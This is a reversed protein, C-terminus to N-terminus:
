LIKTPLDSPGSAVVLRLYLVINFHLQCTYPTLSYVLNFSEPYPGNVPDQSCPISSESETFPGSNRLNTFLSEAELRNQEMSM